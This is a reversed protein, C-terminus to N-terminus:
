SFFKSEFLRENTFSDRDSWFKEIEWSMNSDIATSSSSRRRRFFCFRTILFIFNWDITSMNLSVNFFYSIEIEIRWSKFVFLTFIVQIFRMAHNDSIQRSILLIHMRTILFRTKLVCDCSIMMFYECCCNLKTECCVFKRDWFKKWNINACYMCNIIECCCNWFKWYDITESKILDYIKWFKSIMECANILASKETSSIRFTEISEFFSSLCILNKLVIISIFLTKRINQKTILDFSFTTTKFLCYIWISWFDSIFTTNMFKVRRRSSCSFFRASTLNRSNNMFIASLWSVIKYWQTQIRTNTASIRRFMRQKTAELIVWVITTSCISCKLKINFSDHNYKDIRENRNSFKFDDDIIDINFFVNAFYDIKFENKEFIM